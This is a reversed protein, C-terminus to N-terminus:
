KFFGFFGGGKKLIKNAKKEVESLSNYARNLDSKTKGTRNFDNIVASVQMSLMGLESCEKGSLSSPANDSNLMRNLNQIKRQVEELSPM